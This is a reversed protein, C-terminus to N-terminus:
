DGKVFKQGFWTLVSGTMGAVIWSSSKFFGLIIGDIFSIGAILIPILPIKFSKKQKNEHRAIMSIILTYIFQTTAALLVLYAIKGRLAFAPIVVVMFRCAAILLVSGAHKKHFINYSFILFLLIIGMYVVEYDHYHFLLLLGSLFLFSSLIFAEALSVQGAPIPRFPKKIRDIDIDLIDNLCMGGSYFFSLCFMFRILDSGSFETNSLLIGTLVNTWITPLNSIRCLHLYNVPRNTINNKQYDIM